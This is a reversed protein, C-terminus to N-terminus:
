ESDGKDEGEDEKDVDEDDEDDVIEVASTCTEFYMPTVHFWEYWIHLAMIPMLLEFVWRPYKSLSTSAAFFNSSFAAVIPRDTFKGSGSACGGCSCAM